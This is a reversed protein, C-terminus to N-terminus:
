GNPVPIQIFFMTGGGQVNEFDIKANHLALIQRVYSLGLGYGKIGNLNNEPIRFYPTFINNRYQMPIGIGNDSFEIVAFDNKRYAALTIVPPRETYKLSNDILNNFVNTLHHRDAMIFIEKDMGNVSVRAKSADLQSRIRSICDGILEWVLIREFNMIMKAQELQSHVLITDVMENLNDVEKQMLGLYETAVQKEDLLNYNVISELGVRLVSIPTKLEHTMNNTFTRKFEIYGRMKMVSRILSCVTAICILLFFLALILTGEMKSFIAGSYDTVVIEYFKHDPLLASNARILDGDTHEIKSSQRLLFSIRLPRLASDVRAAFSRNAALNVKTVSDHPSKAASTGSDKFILIKGKGKITIHSGKLNLGALKSLNLIQNIQRLNEDLIVSNFNNNAEILIAKKKEDYDKGLWYFQFAGLSILIVAAVLFPYRFPGYSGASAKRM